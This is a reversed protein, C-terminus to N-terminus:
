PYETTPLSRDVLKLIPFDTQQQLASRVKASMALKLTWWRTVIPRQSSSSSFSPSQMEPNVKQWCWRCRCCLAGHNLSEFLIGGWFGISYSWSHTIQSLRAPSSRQKQEMNRCATALERRSWRAKKGFEIDEWKGRGAFARGSNVNGRRGVSDFIERQFMVACNSQSGYKAERSLTSRVLGPMRSWVKAEPRQRLGHFNPFLCAHELVLNFWLGIGLWAYLWVWGFNARRAAVSSFYPFTSLVPSAIPWLHMQSAKRFIAHRCSYTPGCFMPKRNKLWGLLDWPRIVGDCWARRKVNWCSTAHEGQMATCLQLVAPSLPSVINCSPAYHCPM